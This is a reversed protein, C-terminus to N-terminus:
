LEIRLERDDTPNGLEIIEGRANAYAGTGGTIAYNIPPEILTYTTVNFLLEGLGTIQSLPTNPLSRFRYTASYQMIRTGPAYFRDGTDTERMLTLIGSHIGVYRQAENQPLGNGPTQSQYRQLVVDESFFDQWGPRANPPPFKPKRQRGPIDRVNVVITTIAM